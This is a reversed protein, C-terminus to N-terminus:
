GNRSNELENFFYNCINNWNKEELNIPYEKEKELFSERIANIFDKTNYTVKIEYNNFDPLDHYAVIPKGAAMAQYYKATMGWPASKYWNPINPVIIVDANTVWSPVEKRPIGNIFILNTLAKVGNMFFAPAMVPCVIIFNIEPALQAAELIMKWDIIRAGVYLATNKKKLLEPVPYKQKYEQLDVGNSMIRYNVSEDFDPIYKKYADYGQKNVLFVIDAQKLLDIEQKKYRIGEEFAILPDSPRYIITSKPFIKKITNVLLVSATSEFVFFDTNSFYKKSFRKFSTITWREFFNLLVPPLYKHYKMPIPLAFSLLTINFISNDQGELNFIRGKILNKINKYRYVESNRLLGWIPRPFSFFVTNYGKKCAYEALKHFGGQRATEWNHFTLFVIKKQKM